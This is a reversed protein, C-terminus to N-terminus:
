SNHKLPILSQLKRDRLYLGAWIFMGLYVPFLVHSFLPSAVRLNSAVAGGLYGTLLIAGLVSTQPILYLLTCILILVGLVPLITESYGLNVTAKISNADKMIKGFSDMLMFLAALYSLIRGTWLIGAAIPKATLSTQM